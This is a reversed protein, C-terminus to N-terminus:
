RSGGVRDTLYGVVGEFPIRQQQMSDRERVTVKGDEVSEFDV